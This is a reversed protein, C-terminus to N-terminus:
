NGAPRGYKRPDSAGYRRQKRIEVAQVATFPKRFSYTRHGRKKLNTVVDRPLDREVVLMQPMWQHHVRSRSVAASVDMGFDLVNLIVQLTSTIITPGGSGGVVLRVKGKHTVITPSMSSLPRKGPAIENLHSQILGFANPKGPRTTFDDMENNLIVGSQPAMVKSGFGTNITTTLAVANGFRDVASLHSTGGGRHPATAPLKKSGYTSPRKVKGTVRKLLRNAYKQSTLWALPVKVFDTDGLFRARDAFAHQLAESLLHLYASSNHGMKKLNKKRLMNLAQLIVIGGSSPPPMTHITHGRYTTTLPKRWTVRYNAMDKLTLVGGHKRAAKVIDKAIWGKYFADPGKNAIAAFTKALKPRKLTAGLQLAKGGPYFVKALETFRIYRKRRYRLGSALHMGVPFGDRALRIAPALVKKLSLKGYTQIATACGKVEGPIAVALGGTRSAYKSLGKKLYMARHAAAPARERFDLVRVPLNAIKVLMFGGGGLGSGLPNVVSQAFVAACIADVANGGQKLITAGAQSALPHDTAVMGKTAGLPPPSASYAVVPMGLMWVTVLAAAIVGCCVHPFLRLVLQRIRVLHLFKYVTVRKAQFSSASVFVGYVKEVSITSTRSKLLCKGYVVSSEIVNMRTGDKQSSLGM